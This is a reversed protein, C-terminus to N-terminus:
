FHSSPPEWTQKGLVIQRGNTERNSVLLVSQQRPKEESLGHGIGSPFQTLNIRGKERAKRQLDPIEASEMIWSRKRGEGLSNKSRLGFSWKCFCNVQKNFFSDEDGLKLTMFRTCWTTIVIKYNWLLLYILTLANLVICVTIFLVFRIWIRM